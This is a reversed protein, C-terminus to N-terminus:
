CHYSCSHWHCLMISM